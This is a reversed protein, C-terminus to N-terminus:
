GAKAFDVHFHAPEAMSEVKVAILRSFMEHYKLGGVLFGEESPFLIECGQNLQTKIIGFVRTDSILDGEGMKQSPGEDSVRNIQIVIKAGMRQRESKVCCFCPPSVRPACNPGLYGHKSFLGSRPLGLYLCLAARAPKQCHRFGLVCHTDNSPECVILLAVAECQM